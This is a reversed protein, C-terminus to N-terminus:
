PSAIAEMAGISVDSVNVASSHLNKTLKSEAGHTYCIESSLGGSFVIYDCYTIPLAADGGCVFRETTNALHRWYLGRM